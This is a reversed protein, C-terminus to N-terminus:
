RGRAEANRGLNQRGNGIKGNSGDRDGEKRKPCSNKNHAPEGCRSCHYGRHKKRRNKTRPDLRAARISAVEQALERAQREREEPLLVFEDDENEPCEDAPHDGDCGPCPPRARRSRAPLVKEPEVSEKPKPRVEFVPVEEGIQRAVDPGISCGVCLRYDGSPGRTFAEKPGQKQAARRQRAVCAGAEITARYPECRFMDTATQLLPLRVQRIVMAGIVACVARM